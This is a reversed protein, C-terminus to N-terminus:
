RTTTGSSHFRTWHRRSSRRIEPDYEGPKLGWYTYWITGTWRDYDEPSMDPFNPPLRDCDDWWFVAGDVTGDEKIFTHEPMGLDVCRVGRTTRVILLIPTSVENASKLDFRMFIKGDGPRRGGSLTIM